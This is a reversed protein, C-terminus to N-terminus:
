ESRIRRVHSNTSRNCSTSDLMATAAIILHNERLFERLDDCLFSKITWTPTLSLDHEIRSLIIDAAAVIVQIIVITIHTRVAM